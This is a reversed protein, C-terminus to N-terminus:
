KSGGRSLGVPIGNQNQSAAPICLSHLREVVVCQPPFVAPPTGQNRCSGSHVVVITPPLNIIEWMSIPKQSQISAPLSFFFTSNEQPGDQFNVSIDRFDARM